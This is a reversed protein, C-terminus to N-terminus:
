VLCLFYSARPLCQFSLVLSSLRVDNSHNLQRGAVRSGNFKWLYPVLVNASKSIGPWPRTRRVRFMSLLSATRTNPSSRLHNPSQLRTLGSCALTDFRGFLGLYDPESESGWLYKRAVGSVWEATLIGLCPPPPPSTVATVPHRGRPASTLAGATM